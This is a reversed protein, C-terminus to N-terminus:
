EGVANFGSGGSCALHRRFKGAGSSSALIQGTTKRLIDIMFHVVGYGIVIRRVRRVVIGRFQLKGVAIDQIRHLMYGAIQIDAGLIEARDVVEGMAMRQLAHKRPHRGAAQHAARYWGQLGAGCEVDRRPRM